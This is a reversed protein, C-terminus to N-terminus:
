AKPDVLVEVRTLRKDIGQVDKKVECVDKEVANLRHERLRHGGVTGLMAALFTGAVTIIAVIVETAM